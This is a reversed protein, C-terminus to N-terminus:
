ITIQIPKQLIEKIINSTNVTDNPIRKLSDQIFLTVENSEYEIKNYQLLETNRKLAIKIKYVNNFKFNYKIDDIRFKYTKNSKDYNPKCKCYNYKLHIIPYKYIDNNSEDNIKVIFNLTEKDYNFTSCTDFIDIIEEPVTFNLSINNINEDVIENLKINGINDTNLKDISDCKIQSLKGGSIKENDNYSYNWRCRSPDNCNVCKRFCDDNGCTDLTEKKLCNIINDHKSEILDCKNNACIGEENIVGLIEDNKKCLRNEMLSKDSKCNIVCEKINNGSVLANNIDCTNITEQTTKFQEKNQLLVLFIIFLLINIFIYILM